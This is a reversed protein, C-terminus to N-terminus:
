GGPFLLFLTGSHTRTQPFFAGRHGQGVVMVRSGWLRKREVMIPEWVCIEREGELIRPLADHWARRYPRNMQEHVVEDHM